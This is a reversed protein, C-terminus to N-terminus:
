SAQKRQRHNEEHRSTLLSKLQERQQATLISRGNELAEIRLYRLESRLKEGEQIKAKIQILDAPTEQTLKFTDSEVTKLQQQLPAIQDQYHTRTKELNAVQDPSLKLEDKHKLALSIIPAGRGFMQHMGPRRGMRGQGEANAYVLAAAASAALAFAAAAFFSRKLKIM